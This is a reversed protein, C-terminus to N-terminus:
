AEMARRTVLNAVALFSEESAALPKPGWRSRPRFTSGLRNRLAMGKDPRQPHQDLRGGHATQRCETFFGVNEHVIAM